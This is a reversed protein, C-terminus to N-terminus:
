VCPVGYKAQRDSKRSAQPMGVAAEGASQPRSSSVNRRWRAGSSRGQAGRMATGISASTGPVGSLSRSGCVNWRSRICALVSANSRAARGWWAVITSSSACKRSSAEDARKRPRISVTAEVSHSSSIVRRGSGVPHTGASPSGISSIRRVGSIPSAAASRSVETVPRGRGRWTRSARVSRADPFGSKRRSNASDM